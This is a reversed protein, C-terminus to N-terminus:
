ILGVLPEAGPTYVNVTINICPDFMVVALRDDEGHLIRHLRLRSQTVTASSRSTHAHERMLEEPTILERIERIRLDDTRINM